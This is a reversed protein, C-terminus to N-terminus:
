SIKITRLKQDEPVVHELSIVLIGDAMSADVVEVNETVIFTRIFARQSIGKHVYDVEPKEKKSSLSKVTLVNKEISINIDESTLGALAFRLEYKNEDMKIIDYPPFGVTNSSTITEMNSTVRDMLEEFGVGYQKLGNHMPFMAKLDKHTM